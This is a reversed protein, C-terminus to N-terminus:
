ADGRTDEGSEHAGVQREDADDHQVEVAAVHGQLTEVRQQCGVPGLSRSSMTITSLPDSSSTTSRTAVVLPVARHPHEFRQGVEAEGAAAVEADADGAVVVYTARRLLSAVTSGPHSRAITAPSWDSSRMPATQRSSARRRGTGRCRSRRAPRTVCGAQRADTSPTCRTRPVGRRRVRRRDTRRRRLIGRRRVRRRQLVALLDHVITSRLPGSRIAESPAVGSVIARNPQRQRSGRANM